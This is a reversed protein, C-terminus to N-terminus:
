CKTEQHLVPREVIAAGRGSLDNVVPELQEIVLESLFRAAADGHMAHCSKAPLSRPNRYVCTFSGRQLGRNRDGCRRNQLFQCLPPTITGPLAPTSILIGTTELWKTNPALAHNYCTLVNNWRCGALRKATRRIKNHDSLNFTNPNM